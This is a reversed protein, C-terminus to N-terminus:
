ANFQAMHHEFHLVHLRAWEDITMPGFAPHPAPVMEGSEVRDLYGTLMAALGDTTLREGSDASLAAPAKVNRPIRLIGHLLLPKIVRRAVWTSQDTVAGAEGCAVALMRAFHGPLNQPTMSGWRPVADPPIAELRAVLDAAYTRDFDHAARM